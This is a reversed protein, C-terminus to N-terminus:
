LEGTTPPGGGEAVVKEIHKPMQPLIMFSMKIKLKKKKQLDGERIIDIDVVEFGVAAKVM